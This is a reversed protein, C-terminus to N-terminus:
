EPDPERSAASRPAARAPPHPALPQATRAARHHVASGRGSAGVPRALDGDTAGYSQRGIRLTPLPGEARVFDIFHSRAARSPRTRSSTSCNSSSTAAPRLGYCCDANSPRGGAGATRSRPTVWFIPISGSRTPWCEPTRTLCTSGISRRLDSLDGRRRAHAACLGLRESQTTRRRARRSSLSVKPSAIPPSCRASRRRRTRQPDAFDARRLRDLTDFGLRADDPSLAARLGM